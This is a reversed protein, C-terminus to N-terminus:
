QGGIQMYLELDDHNGGAPWPATAAETGPFNGLDSRELVPM